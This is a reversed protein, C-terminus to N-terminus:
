RMGLRESPDELSGDARRVQVHLLPGNWEVSISAAEGQFILDSLRWICLDECDGCGRSFTDWPFTFTEVGEREPEEERYKVRTSYLFPYPFKRRLRASAFAAAEVLDKVVLALEESDELRKPLPFGIVQKM